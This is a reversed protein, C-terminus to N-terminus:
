GGEDPDDAGAAAPNGTATGEEGPRGPTREAGERAEGPADDPVQGAPGEEPLQDSEARRGEM